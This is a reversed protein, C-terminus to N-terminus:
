LRVRATSFAVIASTEYTTEQLDIYHVHIGVITDGMFNMPIKTVLQDIITEIENITNSHAITSLYMGFSRHSTVM